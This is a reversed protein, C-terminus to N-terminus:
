YFLPAWWQLTMALLVLITAGWLAAQTILSSEPRACYSGDVCDPKSRFYVHWFGGALFVLTVVVFCPKYPELATLSGIWAGSVGLTVLVLPVICCSSALVAGAVGGAALWGSSNKGDRRPKSREVDMGAKAM